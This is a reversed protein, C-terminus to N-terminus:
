AASFRRTVRVLGWRLLAGIAFLVVLPDVIYDWFNTSSKLRLAYALSAIALVAALQRNGWWVMLLALAGVVVILMLPDYGWRYPDTMGVGLAAPYLILGAAIFFVYCQLRDASSPTSLWGLRHLAAAALLAVSTIALDDTLARLYGALPMGGSVPVAGIALAAGLVALQSRRSLARTPLLVFLLLAFSAYAIWSTIIM